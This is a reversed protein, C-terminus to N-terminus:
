MRLFDQVNKIKRIARGFERAWIVIKGRYERLDWVITESLKAYDFVCTRQQTQVVATSFFQLLAPSFLVDGQAYKPLMSYHSAETHATTDTYYHKEIGRGGGACHTPWTLHACVLWTGPWLASTRFHVSSIRVICSDCHRARVRPWIGRLMRRSAARRGTHSPRPRQFAHKGPGRISWGCIRTYRHQTSNARATPGRKERM